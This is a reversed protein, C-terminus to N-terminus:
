RQGGQGGMLAGTPSGLEPAKSGDKMAKAQQAIVEAQQAQQAQQQKQQQMAAYDKEDNLVSAPMGGEILIQKGLEYPKLIDRMEPYAQMLPLFNQLSSMPGELKLYRKQAQALPGLYDVSIDIGRALLEEPPKPIWDNRAAIVFMRDFIPDLFEKTLRSVMGGIVTAKEGQRELVETATMQGDSSAALMMFFNTFYHEKVIQQYFEERDKGVPYGQGVNMFQPIRSMDYGKIKFNPELKYQNYMESPVITPPQAVLQALNTTSQSIRNLRQIDPFGDISPSHPYIEESDYSYRFISMPFSDFGSERLIINKGKLVHVSAYPKNLSDIKYIDRDKRPFIAHIIEYRQFPKSNTHNIFDEPLDVDKGYEAVIDRGSLTFHHFYTDIKNDANTSIYSGKPAFARFNMTKEIKDEGIFMSGLGSHSADLFVQWAGAYFNGTGMIHYFTDQVTDLWQNLGPIKGYQPLEPTLKFWRARQSCVNGLLGNAMLYSSTRATGDMSDKDITYTNIDTTVQMSSRGPVIYKLVDEVTSAWPKRIAQLSEFHSLIKDVLKNEM